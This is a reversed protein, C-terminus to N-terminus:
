VGSQVIQLEFNSFIRPLAERKKEPKAGIRVGLKQFMTAGKTQDTENISLKLHNRRVKTFVFLCIYFSRHDFSQIWIFYKKILRM